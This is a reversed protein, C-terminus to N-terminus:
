QEEDGGGILVVGIMIVIIGVIRAFNFNEDLIWIALFITFVYNMSLMPQLVSLSGYRYAIIMVIAGSGYLAFGIFLFILGNDPQTSLKWFLQGVCVCLSSLFMLAIGIKNKKFSKVM